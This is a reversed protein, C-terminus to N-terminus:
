SSERHLILRVGGQGDPQVDIVQYTSDNVEVIEGAEPEIGLDKCRFDLVPRRNSVAVGATDIEVAEHAADFIGITDIPDGDSPNYRVPIGFTDRCAGLLGDVAESWDNM